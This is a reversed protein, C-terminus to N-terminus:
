HNRKTDKCTNPYIVFCFAWTILSLSKMLVWVILGYFYPLCCARLLFFCMVLMIIMTLSTKFVNKILRIKPDPRTQKKNTPTKKKFKTIKTDLTAIRITTYRALCAITYFISGRYKLSVLLVNSLSGVVDDCIGGSNM